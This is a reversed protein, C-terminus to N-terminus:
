VWGKGGGREEARGRRVARFGATGSGRAAGCEGLDVGDTEAWARYTGSPDAAPRALMAPMDQRLAGLDLSRIMAKVPGVGAPTISLREIGAGLLAMAELPRGGMEGCVGLAVKSGDVTKVVRAIFRM